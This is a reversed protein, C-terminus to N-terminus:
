LSRRTYRRLALGMGGLLALGGAIAGLPAGGTSAMAGAVVNEYGRRAQTGLVAGVFQEGPADQSVSEGLVAEVSALPVGAASAVAAIEAGSMGEFDSPSLGSGPFLDAIQGATVADVDGAQVDALRGGITGGDGQLDDASTDSTATPVSTNTATAAPEGAQDGIPTDTPVPTAQDSAVVTPVPTHTAAPEGTQNDDAIGTSTPTAAPTV